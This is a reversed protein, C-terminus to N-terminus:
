VSIQGSSQWGRDFNVYFDQVFYLVAIWLWIRRQSIKEKAVWMLVKWWLLPIRLSARLWIRCRPNVRKGTVTVKGSNTPRNLLKTVHLAMLKPLHGVVEEHGSDFENPHKLPETNSFEQKRAMTDSEDDGGVAVANSDWKDQPEWMLM